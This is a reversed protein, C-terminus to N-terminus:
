VDVPSIFICLKGLTSVDIEILLPYDNKKYININECLSQCPKLRYLHCTEFVQQKPMSNDYGQIGNSGIVFYNPYTHLLHLESCDMYFENEFNMKPRPSIRPPVVVNDDLFYEGVFPGSCLRLIHLTDNRIKLILSDDDCLKNFMSSLQCVNRIKMCFNMEDCHFTEFNTLNLEVWDDKDDSLQIIRFGKQPIIQIWCESIYYKIIRLVNKFVGARSTKIEFVNSSLIPGMILSIIEKPYHVGFFNLHYEKLAFIMFILQKNM